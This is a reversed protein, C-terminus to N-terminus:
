SIIRILFDLEGLKIERQKLLAFLNDLEGDRPNRNLNFYYNIREKLSQVEEDLEDLKINVKSM